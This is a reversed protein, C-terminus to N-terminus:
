PPSSALSRTSGTVYKPGELVVSLDVIMAPGIQM